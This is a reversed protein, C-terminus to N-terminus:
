RGRLKDQLGGRECAEPVSLVDGLLQPHLMWWTSQLARVQQSSESLTLPNLHPNIGNTNPLEFPGTM